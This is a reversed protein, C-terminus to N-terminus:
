YIPAMFLAKKAVIAAASGFLSDQPHLPFGSYFWCNVSNADPSAASKRAAV